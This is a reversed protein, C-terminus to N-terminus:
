ARCRNEALDLPQLDLVPGLLRASFDSFWSRLGMFWEGRTQERIPSDLSLSLCRVRLVESARSPFYKEFVGERREAMTRDAALAKEYKHTIIAAIVTCERGDIRKGFEYVFGGHAGRRHQILREHDTVTEIMQKLPLGRERGRKLAHKTDYFLAPKQVRRFELRPKAKTLKM